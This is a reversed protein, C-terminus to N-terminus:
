RCRGKKKPKETIKQEMCIKSKPIVPNSEKIVEGKFLIPRIMCDQGLNTHAILRGIKILEGKSLDPIITYRDKYVEVIANPAVEFVSDEIIKKFDRLDVTKRYEPDHLTYERM